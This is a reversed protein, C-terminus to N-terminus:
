SVRQRRKLEDLVRAQERIFSPRRRFLTPL